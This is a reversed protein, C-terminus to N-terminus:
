PQMKSDNENTVIIQEGLIWFVYTKSYQFYKLIKGVRRYVCKPNTNTTTNAREIVSKVVLLVRYSQDHYLLPYFRLYLVITVIDLAILVFRHNPDGGILIALNFVALQADHSLFLAVILVLCRLFVLSIIVWLTILARPVPCRFSSHYYRLIDELNRYYVQTDIFYAYVQRSCLLLRSRPMTCM